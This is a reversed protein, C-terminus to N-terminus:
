KTDKQQAEAEKKDQAVNNKVNCTTFPMFGPHGEMGKELKYDAM